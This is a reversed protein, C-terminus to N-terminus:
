QGGDLRRLRAELRETDQALKALSAAFERAERAPVLLAAEEAFYEAGNRALNDAARRQWALLDRGSRVLRHAAIDGVVRALEDEVDWRLNRFVFALTEAFDAAGTLRAAGFVAQRGGSLLRFPADAPLEITVAPAVAQDADDVARFMGEGNVALDIRLPGGVLRVHQGAFGHLRERAWSEDKLLRNLAGVSAKGFM